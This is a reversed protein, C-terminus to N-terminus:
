MDGEFSDVGSSITDRHLCSRAAEEQDSTYKEPKALVALQDLRGRTM